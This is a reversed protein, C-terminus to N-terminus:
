RFWGAVTAVILFAIAAILLGTVFRAFKVEPAAKSSTWQMKGTIMPTILNQKGVILYLGIMVIHLVVIVQLVMANTQHVNYLFDTNDSSIVGHLAGEVWEEDDAIFLGTVAQVGILLLMTIVAWGGAANHGREQPVNRKLLGRLHSLALTPNVLLTHLRANSSGVMGWLLRFLILALVIEGALRHWDFFGIGTEGSFLSFGVATVLSWHFLRIWQDWIRIVKEERPIRRPMRQM